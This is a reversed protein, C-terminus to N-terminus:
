CAIISFGSKFLVRMSPIRAAKCGCGLGSFPQHGLVRLLGFGGIVPSRILAFDVAEAKRITAATRPLEVAKSANQDRVSGLPDDASAWSSRRVLGASTWCPAVM